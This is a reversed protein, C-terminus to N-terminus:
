SVNVYPILGDTPGIAYGPETERGGRGRITASKLPQFPNRINPRGGQPPKGPIVQTTPRGRGM